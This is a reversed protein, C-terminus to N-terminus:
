ARFLMHWCETATAIWVFQKSFITDCYVPLFRVLTAVEVAGFLTPDLTGGRFRLAETSVRGECILSSTFSSCCKVDSATFSVVMTILFASLGLTGGGVAGRTSLFIAPPMLFHAPQQLGSDM